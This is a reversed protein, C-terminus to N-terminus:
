KQFPQYNYAAKTHMVLKGEVFYFSDSVTEYPSKIMDEEEEKSFQPLEYVAEMSNRSSPMCFPVEFEYSKILKQRFYHREIMLFKKVPQPGVAFELTTGINTLKFFNPGFHYQVFRNPKSSKKGIEWEPKRIEFLM